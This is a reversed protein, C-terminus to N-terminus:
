GTSHGVTRREHELEQELAKPIQSISPIGGHVQPAWQSSLPERAHFVPFWEFRGVM